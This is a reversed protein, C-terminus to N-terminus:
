KKVPQQVRGNAPINSDVSGNGGTVATRKMRRRERSVRTITPTQPQPGSKQVVELALALDAVTPTEFLTRLPIEVGFGDRVRSIFQTALLSHGGLEFFNDY